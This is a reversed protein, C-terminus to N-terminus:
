YLSSLFNLSVPLPCVDPCCCVAIHGCLRFYHGSSHYPESGLPCYLAGPLQVSVRTMPNPGHDNSQSGSCQLPVRIMRSLTLSVVELTMFRREFWSLFRSCVKLASALAGSVTTSTRATKWRDLRANWSVAATTECNGTSGRKDKWHM